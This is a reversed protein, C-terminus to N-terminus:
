SYKGEPVLRASPKGNIAGLLIGIEAPFSVQRDELSSERSSISQRGRLLLPIGIM